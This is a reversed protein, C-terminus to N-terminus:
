QRMPPSREAHLTELLLIAGLLIPVQASTQMAHISFESLDVVSLTSKMPNSRIKGPSDEKLGIEAFPM